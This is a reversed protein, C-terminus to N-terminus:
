QQHLNEGTRYNALCLKDRAAYGTHYGADYESESHTELGKAYGASYAEERFKKVIDHISIGRDLAQIVTVTFDLDTM